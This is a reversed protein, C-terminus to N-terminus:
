KGQVHCKGLENKIGEYQLSPSAVECWGNEIDDYRLTPSSGEWGFENDIGLYQLRSLKPLIGRPIMKIRTEELNLYRLESLEELGQPVEKIATAKLNLKRLAKLNELSPVSGLVECSELMLATLNLLQCISPPLNKIDTRSLDLVSLAPMRSFFCDPIIHLGSCDNLILTTLRPCKPSASSLSICKIDEGMCSVKSAREEEWLIKKLQEKTKVSYNFNDRGIQIAVSRMLDHMKVYKIRDFKSIGGELLCVNELKKLITHGRDLEAQRSTLGDVFREDIFHETLTERDIECDEPFLSCYLFCQQVKTDKVQDYSYKLVQFVETGMDDNREAVPEKLKELADRWESIDEVGRMSRAMTVIALPLGCCKETVSKAVREIKPSLARGHGLEKTFLEWDENGSLPTVQVNKECNMLRCVELSRSTLILKCGNESEGAPIGLRDLPFHQWVDDLILVFNKKGELREALKAAMKMEDDCNEIKPKITEAIDNQLKKISFNRSVTVWTVSFDQHALLENHVHTLLTTKGVGGMGWVGIKSVDNRRLGEWIEDKHQQFKQGILETTILKIKQNGHVELTLGDSFQRQDFETVRETLEKIKPNLILCSYLRSRERVKQEMQNVDNKISAVNQLWNEVVNRPKKMLSSGEAYELGAKVDEEKKKLDDCKTKLKKMKGDIDMFNRVEEVVNKVDLLYGLVTKICDM